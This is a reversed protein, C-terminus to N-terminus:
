LWGAEKALRIADLRNRAGTKRIAAALYNRVTGAALHLHGAIAAVSEGEAALGLVRLERDSLPTESVRLLGFALTEDLHRGGAAVKRVVAALDGTEGYKDVYGGAGAHFARRLDGPREGKTLIVLAGTGDDARSARFSEIETLLGLSGPCDLDLVYVDPPCTGAARGVDGPGATEVHLDTDATLLARLAVRWLPIEHVLLINTRLPM